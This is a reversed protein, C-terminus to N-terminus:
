YPLSAFSTKDLSASDIMNNELMYNEVISPAVGTNSSIASISDDSINNGDFYSNLITKNYSLTNACTTCFEAESNIFVGCNKCKRLEM